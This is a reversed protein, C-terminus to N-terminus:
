TNIYDMLSQALISNGVKLATDYCYKAYGFNSISLAPDERELAYFQEQLSDATLKLREANNEMFNQETSQEVRKQKLTSAALEFKKSLRMFDQRDTETEFHGDNPDCRLFIDAMRDVIVAINQPDGDQDQGYGLFNIGQLAINKVSSEVLEGDVEKFGLGIDAFKTEGSMYDLSELDASGAGASVDKTRYLLSRTGDANEQWSFPVNLGDAGSFVYTEGYRGNMSHVIEDALAKLSQGLANRASADPDNTGRLLHDYASTHPATDVASQITDLAKYAVDYKHMIDDNMEYQTATRLYSRRMQFCRAATTPDESFSNFLRGTQVIDRCKNM